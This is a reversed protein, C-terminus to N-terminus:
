KDEPQSTVLTPLENEEPKNELLKNVSEQGLVEIAKDLVNVAEENSIITKKPKVKPKPKPTIVKGWGFPSLFLTLFGKEQEM